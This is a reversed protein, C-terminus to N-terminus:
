PSGGWYNTRLYHLNSLTTSNMTNTFVVLWQMYHKCETFQSGFEDLDFIDGTVLHNGTKAQIGNTYTVATGIAGGGWCLDQVVGLSIPNDTFDADTSTWHQNGNINISKTSGISRLLAKQGAAPNDETFIMFWSNTPDMIRLGNTVYLFKGTDFRVGQANNTPCVPGTNTAYVGKMEDIWQVITVNTGTDSAKWVWGVGLMNTPDLAKATSAWADISRLAIPGPQGVCTLCSLLLLPLFRMTLLGTIALLKHPRIPSLIAM